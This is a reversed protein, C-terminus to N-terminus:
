PNFETGAQASTNKVSGNRLRYKKLCSRMYGLGVRFGGHLRPHNEVESGETEVDRTSPNHAHAVMTKQPALFWAFSKMCTLCASDLQAAYAARLKILLKWCNLWAHQNISTIGEGSLSVCYFQWSNSGLRSHSQRLDCFIALLWFCDLYLIYYSWGNLPISNLLLLSM